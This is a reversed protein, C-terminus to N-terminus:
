LRVCRKITKLKDKIEPVYYNLGHTTDWGSNYAAVYQEWSDKHEQWYLLETLSMQLNFDYDSVLKSALINRKYHNTIGLRNSATKLNVGAIGYDNFTNKNVNVLVEGAHSEHLAIAAMTYGLDYPEGKDYAQQLVHYQNINFEPCEEGQAPFSVLSLALIAAKM